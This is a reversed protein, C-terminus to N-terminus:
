KGVFLAAKRARGELVDMVRSLPSTYLFPEILFNMARGSASRRAMGVKKGTKLSQIDQPEGNLVAVVDTLRIRFGQTDLDSRIVLDDGEIYLRGCKEFPSERYESITWRSFDYPLAARETQVSPPSLSEVPIGTGKSEMVGQKPAAEDVTSVPSAPSTDVKTVTRINEAIDNDPSVPEATPVPTTCPTDALIGAGTSEMIDRDTATDDFTPVSSPSLADVPNATRTIEAADNDPSVKVGISVPSTSHTDVLTEQGTREVVDQEQSPKKGFFFRVVRRWIRRILNLM